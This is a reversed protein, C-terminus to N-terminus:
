PPVPNRTGVRLTAAPALLTDHLVELQRTLSHCVHIEISRDTPDRALSGPALETLTFIAHQLRGLTTAPFTDDFGDDDLPADDAREILLEIHAQTQRGWSALLRNGTEHHTAAGRLALTRLRKPDVIEFWYERCPNLVYLTVDVWRGLGNLVDLYLPPMDPLCFVHVEQPLGFTNLDKADATKLLRFFAHAPHERAAGMDTSIRRWLEAEWAQDDVQAPSANPMAIVGGAVWANMWDQRYTIYQEFLDAIEAALEYRLVANPDKLYHELRPFAGWDSDELVQYIRWTLAGAAFPSETAVTPVVKAIQKWLWQALYAFDVNACIGHRKAIALNLDRRMASSPVVVQQAAFSSAPMARLATVLSDRLSELRNSFDIRVM